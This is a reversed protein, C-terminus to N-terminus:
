EVGFKWVTTSQYKEGPLLVTTPFDQRNPSDPFHQPEFCIASHMGYTRNSKGRIVEAGINTTYVQLGPETTFIEIMRGSGKHYLIAALSLEEGSKLLVFNHDLGGCLKIQPDEASLIDGLLKTSRADFVTKDVHQIVGTPIKEETVPL